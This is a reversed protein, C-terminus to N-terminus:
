VFFEFELHQGITYFLRINVELRRSSVYYQVCRRTVVTHEGPNPFGTGLIRLVYFPSLISCLKDKGQDSRRLSRQINVFNLSSKGDIQFFSINVKFISVDSSWKIIKTSWYNLNAGISNNIQYMWCCLLLNYIIQFQMINVFLPVEPLTVATIVDFSRNSFYM